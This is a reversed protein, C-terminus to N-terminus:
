QAPIMWLQTKLLAIEEDVDEKAFLFSFTSSGVREGICDWRRLLWAPCPLPIDLRVRPDNAACVRYSQPSCRHADLACQLRWAQDCGREHTRGQPLDVLREVKGDILQAYCWLDAGYTQPRRAIFRGSLHGPSTWRDKYWRTSITTNFVSLGSIEGSSRANDLAKGFRDVIESASAQAPARAWVSYPLEYLGAQKLRASLGDVDRTSLQRLHGRVTPKLDDPLPDVEDPAVGLLLLTNDNLCV